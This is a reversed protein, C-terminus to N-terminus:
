QFQDNEEYYLALYNMFSNENKIKVYNLNYKNLETIIYEEM